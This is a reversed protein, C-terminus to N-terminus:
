SGFINQSMRLANGLKRGNNWKLVNVFIDGIYLSLKVSFSSIADSHCSIGGGFLLFKAKKKQWFLHAERATLRCIYVRSCPM